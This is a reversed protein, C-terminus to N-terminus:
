LEYSIGIDFTNSKQDVNVDIGYLEFNFDEAKTHRYGLILNIKESLEFNAILGFSTQDGIPDDLSVHTIQPRLSLKDFSLEYGAGLTLGSEKTGDVEMRGFGLSAFILGGDLKTYPRLNIGFSSSELDDNPSTAGVDTLYDVAESNPKLDAQAYAFSIDAGWPSVDLSKLNLNGGLTLGWGDFEADWSAVNPSTRIDASQTNNYTGIGIYNEGIKGAFAISPLLLLTCINKM